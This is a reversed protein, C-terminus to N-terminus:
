RKRIMPAALSEIYDRDKGAITLFKFRRQDAMTWTRVLYREIPPKPRECPQWGANDAQEIEKWGAVVLHQV